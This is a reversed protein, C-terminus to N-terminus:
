KEKLIQYLRKGFVSMDNQKGFEWANKGCTGIQEPHEKFRNMAQALSAADGAKYVYGLKRKEVIDAFASNDATIVPMGLAMADVLSTLGIPGLRQPTPPLPIVLISCRNLLQVMKTDDPRDQLFIEISSGTENYNSPISQKDCVIVTHSATTEAVEVLLEHDRRTKGNSIFVIEEQEKKFNPIPAWKRYFPFDPGWQMFEMRAAEHPFMACMEEQAYHSLFLIHDFREAKLRLPFPPHHFIGILTPKFLRLKKLIGLFDVTFDAGGYVIDYKRAKRYLNLWVPFLSLLKMVKSHHSAPAVLIYDVEFEGTEKLESTGFQHHSPSNGLLYSERSLAMDYNNAFLIRKM